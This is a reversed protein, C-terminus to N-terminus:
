SSMGSSPVSSNRASLWIGTRKRFWLKMSVVMPPFEDQEAIHMENRTGLKKEARRRGYAIKGMYVPNDLLGDLFSYSFQQMSGNQRIKKQYGHKNLYEAVGHVDDNTHLYREFIKRIVEAEGEAVILEGNVSIYGYPAFGGNWKSERAKQERGAM